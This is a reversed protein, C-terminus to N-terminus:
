NSTRNILQRLALRSLWYLRDQATTSRATQSLDDARRALKLLRGSPMAALRPVPTM